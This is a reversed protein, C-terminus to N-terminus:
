YPTSNRKLGWYLLQAEVYRKEYVMAMTDHLADEFAHGINSATCLFTSRTEFPPTNIM